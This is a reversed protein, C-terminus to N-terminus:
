SSVEEVGDQLEHRPRPVLATPALFQVGHLAPEDDADSEENPGTTHVAQAAPEADEPASDQM